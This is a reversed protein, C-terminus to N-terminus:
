YTIFLAFIYLRLQARKRDKAGQQRQLVQTSLPPRVRLGTIIMVLHYIFFLLLLLCVQARSADPRLSNCQRMQTSHHDGDRYM